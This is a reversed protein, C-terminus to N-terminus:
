RVSGPPLIRGAEADEAMTRLVEPMPGGDFVQGNGGAGPSAMGGMIAESMTQGAQPMPTPTEDTVTINLKM